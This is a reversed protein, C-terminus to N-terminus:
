GVKSYLENALLDNSEIDILHTEAVNEEMVIEYESVQLYEQLASSKKILEIRGIEEDMRDALYAEIDPLTLDANM